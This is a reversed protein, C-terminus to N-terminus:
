SPLDIANFNLLAVGFEHATINAIVQSGVLKQELLYRIFPIKEKTSRKQTKQAANAEPLLDDLVLKSLGSLTMQTTLTTM